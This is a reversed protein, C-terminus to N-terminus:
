LLRIRSTVSTSRKRTNFWGKVDSIDSIVDEEDVGSDSDERKQKAEEVEEIREVSVEEGELDSDEEEPPSSTLRDEAVTGPTEEDNDTPLSTSM